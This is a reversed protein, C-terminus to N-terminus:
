FPNDPDDSPQAAEPRLGARLRVLRSIVANESRNFAGALHQFSLGDLYLAVLRRDEEETWPRPSPKPIYLGMAKLKMKISNASRGLESAMLAHPLNMEAMERLCDTEEPTWPENFRPYRSKLEGYQEPTLITNM